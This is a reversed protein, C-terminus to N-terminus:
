GDGAPKPSFAITFTLWATWGEPRNAGAVEYYARASISSDHGGVSFTYGAQPGVGMVSSTFAGFSAGPGSDASLQQYLYGAAGVYFNNSFLKAASMDVHMDVGSQYSTSPNMLNITFGLVASFELGTEQKFYTYGVGTDFSWHGLGLTALHLPDYAGTPMNAAGYVMFNHVDVTWKQTLSPSIDGLATISDAHTTGPDAATYNGYQVTVGFETQGGIGPTAIAYTPTFIMLNSSTYLGTIQNAGRTINLSPDTAQTAHYYNTELSLGLPAPMAAQFAFSGPMWFGSGGEDARAESMAGSAVAVAAGLAVVAKKRSVFSM